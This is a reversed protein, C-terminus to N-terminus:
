SQQLNYKVALINDVGIEVTIGQIKSAMFRVKELFHFGGLFMAVGLFFASLRISEIVFVIYELKGRM